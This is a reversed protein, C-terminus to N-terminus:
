LLCDMTVYDHTCHLGHLTHYYLSRDEISIHDSSKKVHVERTAALGTLGQPFGKAKVGINDKGVRMEQWM